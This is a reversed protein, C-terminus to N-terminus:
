NLKFEMSGAGRIGAVSCFLPLTLCAQTNTFDGDARAAMAFSLGASFKVRLLGYKSAHIRRFSPQLSM